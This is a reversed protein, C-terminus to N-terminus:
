IRWIKNLRSCMRFRERVKSEYENSHSIRKWSLLRSYGNFFNELIGM